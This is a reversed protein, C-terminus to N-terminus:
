ANECKGTRILHGEQVAAFTAVACVVIASYKLDVIALMLPFMFLLLGTIKNMVTHDTVFKKRVIFGFVVNMIKIAAIVGVWMWLSIHIELVPILKILCVVVFIFDAVTDLRAGFESVTNMKRAVTGDVMDTFGAILYIVYFAPSFVPWFLLAISCIIRCSTIFNAM